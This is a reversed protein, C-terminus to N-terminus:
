RAARGSLHLRGSLLSCLRCLCELGIQRICECRSIKVLGKCAGAFGDGRQFTLHASQAVADAPSEAGICLYALEIGVDFLGAAGHGIQFCLEDSQALRM